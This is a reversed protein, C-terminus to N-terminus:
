ENLTMDCISIKKNSFFFFLFLFCVSVSPDDRLREIIISGIDQELLSDASYRQMRRPALSRLLKLHRSMRMLPSPTIKPTKTKDKNVVADLFELAEIAADPCDPLQFAELASQYTQRIEQEQDHRQQRLQMDMPLPSRAPSQWHNPNQNHEYNCCEIFRVLTRWPEVNADVAATTQLRRLVLNFLEIAVEPHNPCASIVLDALLVASQWDDDDEDDDIDPSAAAQKLTGLLTEVTSALRVRDMGAGGQNSGPPSLKINHLQESASAHILSFHLERGESTNWLQYMDAVQRAATMTCGRVASQKLMAAVMLSRPEALLKSILLPDSLSKKISSQGQRRYQQRRHRVGPSRNKKGGYWLQVAPQLRALWSKRVAVAPTPQASSAPRRSFYGSADSAQDDHVLQMRWLAQSVHQELQHHRLALEGDNLGDRLLVAAALAQVRRSIM